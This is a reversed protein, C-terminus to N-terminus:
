KSNLEVLRDVTKETIVRNALDRRAEPSDLQDKMTPYQEIMQAHRQTLEAETVEINELKSLEALALGAQVRREAAVKFEKDHWEDHDKYGQQAMYQEPTMGRYMLNQMADQEIQRSQDAVLVPPIPVNSVEVLQAVLNDKYDDSTTKEKQETLQVKVDERMGDVTKFPGVKAAFQDTIKPLSVEKIANITATFVVDAGKLNDAHYDDPFKLPVDFTEGVKHGVLAEEFGPIFSGSGLVLDYGNATGGDFATGDQKGIFDLNVEDGSSAERDVSVKESMQARMREIVENVEADTITVKVKKAKLKKYDGLTIEPVIEITADFVLSDYPQFDKLDVQPRDLIRLEEAIAIDNLAINMAKETTTNALSMPDIHKEAVNAPVKGSRFGPVKVTKSLEQVAAKKAILLDSKDLKVSIIVQTESSKKLTHKM